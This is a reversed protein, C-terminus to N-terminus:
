LTFVRRKENGAVPIVVTFCSGKDLPKVTVDWGMLEAAHKVISLGLGTGGTERSRSKDVRYFREFIRSVSENPIGIGTDEINVYYFKEDKSTSVAVHGRPNNYNVANDILNFFIEEALFRSGRLPGPISSFDSSFLIDKEIAKPRIINICNVVLDKINVDELPFEGSREMRHLKLIDNIISTQRDANEIAKDIMTRCQEKNDLIERITELYGKMITIPTKLEHSMNGVLDAKIREIKRSETVDHVVALVSSWGGDGNVLSMKISFILGSPNEDDFVSSNQSMFMADIGANFIRSRIVEFYLLGEPNRSIGYIKKFASNMFIIKREPSVLVIGDPITELTTFFKKGEATIDHIKTEITDAMMNLSRQVHGIEDNSYNQIRSSLDGSAFQQAFDETERIPKSIRRTVFVMLILTILGITIGAALVGNRMVSISRDIEELPKALRIYFLGYKKVCYLTDHKVSSSRRLSFGYENKSADIVEARYLHNDLTSIDKVESDATVKGDASIITLRLGTISASKEMIVSVLHSNNHRLANEEEFLLEIVGLKEKMERKIINLHTNYVLNISYPLLFGLVGGLFLAYVLMIKRALRKKGM